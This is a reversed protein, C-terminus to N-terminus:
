HKHAGAIKTFEDLSVRKEEITINEKILNLIRENRLQTYLQTFREGKGDQGALYSQAISDMKDGLQEVIQPGGFQEAIMAKAKDMVDASEVKIQHDDAIKSKILDWKLSDAYSKFEKTLVEDNIEGDSTTKLWTKLFSEPMAVQTNDVFHHMLNHDLLRESERKYNEAITQKVKELFEESSSVADKGFVKDFLEQNMAAPEVRSISNVKVKFKGKRAAADEVAVGLMQALTDKDAYMAQIDFEPSEDDKKLGVFKPQLSKEIKSINIFVNQTSGDEGLLEGSINDTEESAEPYMVNGFRKSIDDLTTDIVKQDVEIIYSEVRVKKSLDYTFDEVMGIQFEFEFEKQSDWDISEAKERNPLPDGLIRLNNEKIYDAVSHSLMHNVEEVLISKGFMKSIVGPPVKGARFGKINAKRAYDKVKEAVKPQYDTETLKIKILGDTASLKDLTINM